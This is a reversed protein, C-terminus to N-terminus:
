EVPNSEKLAVMGVGAVLELLAQAHDEAVRPLMYLRQLRGIQSPQYIMDSVHVLAGYPVGGHDVCISTGAVHVLALLDQAEVIQSAYQTVDLVDCLAPATYKHIPQNTPKRQYPTHTHTRTHTLTMGNIRSLFMKM